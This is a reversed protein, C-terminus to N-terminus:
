IRFHTQCSQHRASGSGRTRCTCLWTLSAHCSFRSRRVFRGRVVDTKAKVQTFRGGIPIGQGTTHPGTTDKEEEWKIPRSGEGEWDPIPQGWPTVAAGSKAAGTEEEDSSDEDDEDDDDDDTREQRPKIEETVEEGDEGALVIRIVKGNEDRVIRGFGQALKGDSTSPLTASEAQADEDDGDEQVDDSDDDDGEEMDLDLAELQQMTAPTQTALAYPVGEVPVIGGAQRPNM